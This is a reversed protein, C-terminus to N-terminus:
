ATTAQNPQAHELGGASAAHNESERTYSHAPVEPAARERSGRQSHAANLRHADGPTTAQDSAPPHSGPTDGIAREAEVLPRTVTSLKPTKPDIHPTCGRHSRWARADRL